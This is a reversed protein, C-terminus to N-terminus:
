QHRAALARASVSSDAIAERLSGIAARELVAPFRNRHVHKQNIEIEVGVYQTATFRRRLHSTLGDNKGEYPYNRRVRLPQVRPALSRSWRACLAREGPRAPDYLLGIDANRRRGDLVPTFSHSSVHVVRRGAAIARTVRREVERRYPLYHAALIRAHEGRPLTRTYDSYLGRNGVSRNLDVLLRSITSAVLTASLAAALARALALAGADYGRHTALVAQADGFLPRYPAPIRNGGHECTVIVFPARRM